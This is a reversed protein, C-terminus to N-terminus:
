FIQICVMTINEMDTETKHCRNTVMMKHDISHLTPNNPIVMIKNTVMSKIQKDSVQTKIKRVTIKHTM